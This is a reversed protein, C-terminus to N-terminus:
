FTPIGTIAINWRDACSLFKEKDLLIVRSEELALAAAGIDRMIKLTRTGVVPVDFRMDQNSKSFKLVTVGKGAIRGGRKITNDTGELAEAAVVSCSKVVITQGIDVEVFKRIMRSGYEIDRVSKESLSVNNMLGRTSMQESLYVTSDIFRVGDKQIHDIIATFIAHPRFDKTRRVLDSLESDWFRPYFIRWPSIQGAMVCRTLGEAKIIARLRGLQGPYIWYAKDCFDLVKRSTEGRFCIAVIERGSDKEKIGRALLVPLMRNGAILGTKM